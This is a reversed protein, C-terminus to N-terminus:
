RETDLDVKNIGIHLLLHRRCVRLRQFTACLLHIDEMVEETVCHGSAFGEPKQHDTATPSSSGPPSQHAAGEVAWPFHLVQSHFLFGVKLM